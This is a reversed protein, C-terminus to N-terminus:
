HVAALCPFNGTMREVRKRRRKEFICAIVFATIVITTLIGIALVSSAIIIITM